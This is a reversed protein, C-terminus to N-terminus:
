VRKFYFIILWMGLMFLVMGAWINFAPIDVNSSVIDDSETTITICTSSAWQFPTGAATPTTNNDLSANLVTVRPKTYTCDVTITKASVVYYGMFLVFFALSSVLFYKTIYRIM